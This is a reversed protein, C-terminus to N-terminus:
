DYNDAFFEAISTLRNSSAEFLLSFDSVLSSTVLEISLSVLEFSFYHAFQNNIFFICQISYYQPTEPHVQCLLAYLIRIREVLTKQEPLLLVNKQLYFWSCTCWALHFQVQILFSVVKRHLDIEKGQLKMHNFNSSLAETTNFLHPRLIKCHSSVDLLFFIHNGIQQIDMHLFNTNQGLFQSLTQCNIFDIFPNSLAFSNSSAISWGFTFQLTKLMESSLNSDSFKGFVRFM